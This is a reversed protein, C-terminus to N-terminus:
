AENRNSTNYLLVSPLCHCSDEEVLMSRVARYQMLLRKPLRVIGKGVALITIASVAYMDLLGQWNRLPLYMAIHPVCTSGKVFGSFKMNMNM